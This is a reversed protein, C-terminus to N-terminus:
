IQLTLLLDYLEHETKILVDRSKVGREIGIIGASELQDMLRGARNYGISFRRQIMSTSAVQASVILYAAEKFYPDLSFICDKEQIEPEIIDSLEMLCPVYQSNIHNITTTIENNNPKCGQIRETVLAGTIEKFLMDGVMSLSCAEANGIIKESAYSSLTRFIVRGNINDILSTKLAENDMVRTSLILHIGVINCNLTLLYLRDILQKGLNLEFDGYDDIIVVLYPLYEFEDIPNLKHLVYKNNFDEINRVNAKSFLDLRYNILALLADLTCICEEYDYIVPGDVNDTRVALFGPISNYKDLGFPKINMLVFKLENPHKKFLLSMIISDICTSKGHKSDGAIIINGICKLDKIAPINYMDLGLVIPLAFQNDIFDQHRAIKEFSCTFMSKNPIEIGIISTGPIPSQIRVGYEGFNIEIDEKHNRIKRLCTLSSPYIEFLIFIHGYVVNINKIEIGYSYLLDIIQDKKDNIYEYPETLNSTHHLLSYSPYIYSEFPEKHNLPTSLIDSKEKENQVFM